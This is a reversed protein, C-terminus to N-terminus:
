WRSTRVQEARPVSWTGQGGSSRPHKVFFLPPPPPAVSIARPGGCCSGGRSGDADEGDRAAGERVPAVPLPAVHLGSSRSTTPAASPPAADRPADPDIGHFPESAGSAYAGHWRRAEGPTRVLWTEPWVALAKAAADTAVAAAASRGMHFGTRSGTDTDLAQKAAAAKGSESPAPVGETAFSVDELALRKVVQRLRWFLTAKCSLVLCNPSWVWPKPRRQGRQLQLQQSQTPTPTEASSRCGAQDGDRGHVDGGARWGGARPELQEFRSLLVLSADEQRDALRWGGGGSGGGVASRRQQQSLAGAVLPATEGCGVDSDPPPPICWWKLERPADGGRRSGSGQCPRM